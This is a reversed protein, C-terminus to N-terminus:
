RKAGRLGRTYCAMRVGRGTGRSHRSPRTGPGLIRYLLALPESAPRFAEAAVRVLGGRQTKPGEAVEERRRAAVRQGKADQEREPQQSRQGKADQEREPQQSGRARRMKSESPNSRGEPVNLANMNHPMFDCGAGRVGKETLLHPMKSVLDTESVLETLLHPTKSVLDSESVLETLLHPTKSVLDIEFVLETLLVATKRVDWLLFRSIASRRARRPPKDYPPLLAEGSM